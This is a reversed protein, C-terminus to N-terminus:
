RSVGSSGDSNSCAADKLANPETVELAVGSICVLEGAKRGEDLADVAELAVKLPIDAPADLRFKLLIGPRKEGLKLTTLM